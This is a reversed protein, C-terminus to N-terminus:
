VVNMQLNSSDSSKKQTINYCYNSNPNKFSFLKNNKKKVYM